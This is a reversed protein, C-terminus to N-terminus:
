NSPLSHALSPCHANASVQMSFGSTQFSHYITSSFHDALSIAPKNAQSVVGRMSPLSWREVSPQEWEQSKTWRFYSSIISCRSDIFFFWLLLPLLNSCNLLQVRLLTIKTDRVKQSAREAINIRFYVTKEKDNDYTLSLSLSFNM